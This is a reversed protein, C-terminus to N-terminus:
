AAGHASQQGRQVECVQSSLEEREIHAAELQLRLEDAEAAAASLQEQAEAMREQYVALEVELEEVAM